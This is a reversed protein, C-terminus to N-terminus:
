RFHWRIRKVITEKQGLRAHLRQRTCHLSPVARTPRCQHKEIKPMQHELATTNSCGSPLEGRGGLTPFLSCEKNRETIESRSVQRSGKGKRNTLFNEVHVAEARGLSFLLPHSFSCHNIADIECGRALCLIYSKYSVEV